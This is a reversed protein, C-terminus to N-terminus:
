APGVVVIAPEVLYREAVRQVDAATVAAIRRPYDSVHAHGVGLAEFFALYFSRRANTRLDLVFGGALQTKALELEEDSVREAALRDLEHRIGAEATAV